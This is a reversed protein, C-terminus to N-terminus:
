IKWVGVIILYAKKKEELVELEEEAVLIEQLAIDNGNAAKKILEAIKGKTDNIEKSFAFETAQFNLRVNERGLEIMDSTVEDDSKGFNLDFLKKGKEM